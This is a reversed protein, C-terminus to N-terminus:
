VKIDIMKRIMIFGMLYMAVLIIAGIIFMRDQAVGLYFGPNVAFLGVFALVPLVTLMWGTMRGESSLARVRMYLSARERIVDALNQLIEALNGGTESQVSLSVVFMRIDDLDWREAMGSLAETLEAGYAVEDGVLGFESGIPDEMENTLLEIAGAIPHGARLARVFIDLSVPFQQEIRKRRRQGVFSLVLMPLAFTLCFAVTVTILLTGTGLPFGASAVAFLLIAELILFAAGMALLAQGPTVPLSAAMVTRQMNELRTGIFPPLESYSRPANKRLEAMIEERSNGKQLLRLRQNVAATHSRRAWLANLALQSVVFVSAFIALLVALRLLLGLM